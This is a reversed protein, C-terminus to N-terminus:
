QSLHTKTSASFTYDYCADSQYSSIPACSHPYYFTACALVPLQQQSAFAIQIANMMMANAFFPYVLEVSDYITM